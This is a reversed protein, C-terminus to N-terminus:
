EAVHLKATLPREPSGACADAGGGRLLRGPTRPSTGGVSVIWDGGFLGMTGEPMMLDMEVVPIEFRVVLLGGAPVSVRRFAKLEQLPISSEGAEREEDPVEYRLYVQVVETSNKSVTAAPLGRDRLDVTVSIHTPPSSASFLEPEVKLGTYSLPRSGIGFGFPFLPPSQLYRHTRGPPASLQQTLYPPLQKVSDVM